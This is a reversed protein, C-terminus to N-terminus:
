EELTLEVAAVCGPDDCECVFPVREGRWVGAAEEFAARRENYQKFALENHEARSLRHHDPRKGM